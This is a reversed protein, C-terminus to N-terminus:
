KRCVSGEKGSKTDIFSIAALTVTAAVYALPDADYAVGAATTVAGAAAIAGAIATRSIRVAATM